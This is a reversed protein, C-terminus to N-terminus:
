GGAATRITGLLLEIDPQVLALWRAPAVGIALIGAIFAGLMLAERLDLPRLHAALDAKNPTGHMVRRFMSLMYIAGLIVGGVAGVALPMRYSGIGLLVLFEAVFGSTGPLGIAAMTILLFAWSFNPLIRSVGGYAALERTHTRDYLIGVCAFLAGTVLGHSVMQLMAGSLGAANLTALGAVVYGMHSVSSYAILRKLDKQVLVMAAGYLIGAVGLVVLAWRAGLAAAPFLGLCYRLIGYGGMKLLVGALM